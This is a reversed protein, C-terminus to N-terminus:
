SLRAQWILKSKTNEALQRLKSLSRFRFTIPHKKHDRAEKDTRAIYHGEAKTLHNPYLKVKIKHLIDKLEHIAM